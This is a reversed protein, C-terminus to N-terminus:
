PTVGMWCIVTSGPSSLRRLVVAKKVANLPPEAAPCPGGQINCGNVRYNSPMVGVWFIVSGGPFSM